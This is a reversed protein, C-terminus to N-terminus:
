SRPASRYSCPRHRLRLRPRPRRSRPVICISQRPSVAARRAPETRVSGRLPRHATGPVLHVLAYVRVVVSEPVLLVAHQQALLRLRRLEQPFALAVISARARAGASPPPPASPSAPADPDSRANTACTGRGSFSCISASTSSFFFFSRSAFYAESSSCPCCPSAFAISLLRAYYLGAIDDDKKVTM